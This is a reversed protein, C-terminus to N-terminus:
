QIGKLLHNAIRLAPGTGRENSVAFCLLYLPNNVSNKLVGPKSAVGAFIQKLRDNFYVGISELTAKEVHEIEYGFMNTQKSIKYFKDYWEDTGLFENLCACWDEPIDGTNKLLRGVGMGLPFLLWLDIAKTRAIAEITSWKVQMGYPDIFLVARRSAWRDRCLAQIEANAEGWKVEIDGAKDPFEQRLKELEDCRKRNKEIFVYQDFRPEVQLAIRASGDLLGQPESDALDPFISALAHSENGSDERYGTGAFADIYIKQFSTNKLATTYATLYKQLVELKIRTWDGGFKHSLKISEM